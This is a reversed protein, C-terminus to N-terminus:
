IQVPLKKIFPLGALGRNVGFANALYHVIMGAAIPVLGFRTYSWNGFRSGPPNWLATGTTFLLVRGFYENLTTAQGMGLAGSPPRWANWALTAFGGALALSLKRSSWGGGKRRTKARKVRYVTRTRAKAM